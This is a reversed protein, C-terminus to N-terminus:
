FMAQSVLTSGLGHVITKGNISIAKRLKKDKALSSLALAIDTTNLLHSWGLSKAVGLKQMANATAAQNEALTLVIAPLGMYAVELTTTGGAIIAISAWAMLSPMDDTYSLIEIKHGYKAVSRVTTKLAALHPNSSGAILIVHFKVDNIEKLANLILFNVGQLDSGGLTILLKLTDTDSCNSQCVIFEDRLLAYKPGMLMKTNNILPYNSENAHFNQNLIIDAEYETLKAMDDIVLLKFGASRIKHHDKTDFDYGDLVVWSVDKDILDFWNYKNDKTLANFTHGFKHIRALLFNDEIYGVFTTTAGRKKCANALALCRMIHGTGIAAHGDARFIVKNQLALIERL